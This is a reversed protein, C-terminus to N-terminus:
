GEMGHRHSIEAAASHSIRALAGRRDSHMRWRGRRKTLRVHVRIPASRDPRTLERGCVSINIAIITEGSERGSSILRDGVGAAFPSSCDLVLTASIMKRSEPVIRTERLAPITKPPSISRNPVVSSTYALDTVAVIERRVPSIMDDLVM